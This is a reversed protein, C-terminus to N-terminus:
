PIRNLMKFPKHLVALQNWEDYSIPRARVQTPMWGPRTSGANGIEQILLVSLGGTAADSCKNAKCILGFKGPKLAGARWVRAYVKGKPKFGPSAVPVCPIPAQDASTHQRCRWKSWKIPWCTSLNSGWGVHHSGVTSRALAFGYPQKKLTLNNKVSVWLM